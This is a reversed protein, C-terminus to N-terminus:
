HTFYRVPFFFFEDTYVMLHTFNQLPIQSPFLSHPIFGMRNMRELVFNVQNTLRSSCHSIKSLIDSSIVATFIEKMQWVSVKRLTVMIELFMKDYIKPVWFSFRPDGSYSAPISSAQSVNPSFSDNLQAQM